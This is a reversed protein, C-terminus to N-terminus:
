KCENDGETSNIGYTISKGEVTELFDSSWDKDQRLIPWHRENDNSCPTTQPKHNHYKRIM